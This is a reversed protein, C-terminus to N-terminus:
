GYLTELQNRVVKFSYTENLKDWANSIVQFAKEPSKFYEVFKEELLKEDCTATEPYLIEHSENLGGFNISGVSAVQIVQGGPHHHLPDLNFHYLNNKWMNVFDSQSLYDFKQGQQLPKFHVPINYKNSIYNAFQYTRGRRPLPNPIYAWIGNTKENSYFHEYYYDINIPQNSFNLKKGVLHEIKLFEPLQKMSSAAEAHIYDCDKLFKIRNRFKEDDTVYVEKLYGVITANPYKKRLREVSYIDWTADRLGDRECAYFILDLDLDPFDKGQKVWENLNLFHGTDWLFNWNHTNSFCQPSITHHYTYPKNDEFAYATKDKVYYSKIGIAGDWIIAVKM